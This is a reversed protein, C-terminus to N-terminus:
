DRARVSLGLAHRAAIRAFVLGPGITIGPAPYTGGMISHMDNGCAYRHHGLLAEPIVYLVPQVQSDESHAPLGFFAFRVEDASAKAQELVARVGEQLVLHLREVGIEVHYSSGGEHRARERGDRDVLVFATKTGGGDVGLYYGDTRNMSGSGVGAAKLKAVDDAALVRGKAFNVGNARWSHALIAGAAEDIPTTGFRM